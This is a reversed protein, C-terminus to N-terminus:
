PINSFVNINSTKAQKMLREITEKFGLNLMRDAEDLVLYRLNDFKINDKDVFDILRGPTAILIHCGKIFNDFQYKTSTGGYLISCKIFSGYAFKRAETYIQIALERTPSLVLVYPKSVTLEAGDIILQNIMPVLFAATKGSGTQACAMLDRGLNIVPIAIKQIPTPVKYGSRKINKLMLERLGCELFSKVPKPAEEGTVKLPIHDYKAFNLGTKLGSSFIEEENTPPEPPIYNERPKEDEGPPSSDDHQSKKRDDYKDRGGFKDDRGGFKDDRGGFRDERGGFRDERGGFRNDRGGYKDDRGGFKDDGRGGFKDGHGGFKNDSRGDRDGFRGGGGGGGRGGRDGRDMGGRGGGGMRDDQGFPKRFGGDGRDRGFDRDGGGFGGRSGFGGGGGRGGGRAVFGRDGGPGGAGAGRSGGRMGGGGSGGRMGFGGRMGSSGGRGGRSGYRDDDDFKDDNEKDFSRGGSFNGGRGRSPPSWSNGFRDNGMDKKRGGFDDDNFKGKFAPAPRRDMPKRNPNDQNGEFGRRKVATNGYSPKRQDWEGM